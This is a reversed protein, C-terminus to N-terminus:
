CVFLVPQGGVAFRGYKDFTFDNMYPTRVTISYQEDMDISIVKCEGCLPSYVTDGAHLIKLLNVM